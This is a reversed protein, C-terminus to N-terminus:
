GAPEDPRRSLGAPEGASDQRRPLGAPECLENNVIAALIFEQNEVYTITNHISDSGHLYRNSGGKTWWKRNQGVHDSLSAQANGKLVRRVAPGDDPCRVVVVHVHTAMLAGRLIMWDRDSAAEIIAQAACLALLKTLKATEHKQLTKARQLTYPDDRHPEEGVVNIKRVFRGESGERGRPLLKNSVFGREDGPLWTGYCTWTIFLGFRIEEM